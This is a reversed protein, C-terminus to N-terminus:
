KYIEIYGQYLIANLTNDVLKLRSRGFQDNESQPKALFINPGNVASALFLNM